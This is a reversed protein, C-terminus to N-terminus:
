IRLPRPQSTVSDGATQRADCLSLTTSRALLVPTRPQDASDTRADPGITQEQFRSQRLNTCSTSAPRQTGKCCTHSASAHHPARVGSTTTAEAPNMLGGGRQSADGHSHGMGAHHHPQIARSVDSSSTVVSCNMQCIVAVASTPLLALVVIAAILARAQM